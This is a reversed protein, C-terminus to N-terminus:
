ALKESQWADGIRPTFLGPLGAKRRAKVHKKSIQESVEQARSVLPFNKSFKKEARM